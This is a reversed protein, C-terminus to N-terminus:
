CYFRAFLMSPPHCARYLNARRDLISHTSRDVLLFDTDGTPQSFEHQDSPGRRLTADTPLSLVPWRSASPASDHANIPLRPSQISIAVRLRNSVVYLRETQTKVTLLILQTSITPPELSHFHLSFSPSISNLSVRTQHPVIGTHLNLDTAPPQASSISM